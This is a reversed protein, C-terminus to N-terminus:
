NSKKKEYKKIKKQELHKQLVKAKELTSINEDLKEKLQQNRQINIREEELGELLENLIAKNCHPYAYEDINLSVIEDKLQVKEPAESAEISGILLNSDVKIGESRIDLLFNAIQRYIDNYFVGVKTEYFEVAEPENLMHYLLQKEILQYRSLAKKMQPLHHVFNQQVEPEQAQKKLHNHIASTSFGTLTSLKSVYDEKQLDSKLLQILPTINLVIDEREDVQTLDKRKEYYDMLYDLPLILNQLYKKLKDPGDQNLIEDIDRKDTTTNVIKFNLQAKLLHPIVKTMALQGPEDGDLCLRVEVNLFRLLKLHANSFSTGMIAVASSYGIRELAIVDMFGEVVYVYGVIKAVNKTLAYNYLIQSKTFIPSEPSNIYKPENEGKKQIIRGSFAVVQGDANTIPFIIRNRLRDVGEGTISSIGLKELVTRTHGRQLLKQITVAGNDLSFGIKFKDIMAKSIHRSKLYEQAFDGDTTNLIYAYLNAAEEMAEYYPKLTLDVSKEPILTTLRPDTIGSLEAVKKLANFFNIKEYKQVFHIATGGEGCSFCKFIQKEQSINLSPNKDDHFPCLALYNKGKKTVNIYTSIINVIDTRKIIDNLLQNDFAM